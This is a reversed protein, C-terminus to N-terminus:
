RRGPSPPRARTRCPGRGARRWRGARRRGHAPFPGGPNLRRTTRHRSWPGQHDRSGSNLAGTRRRAATCDRFAGHGQRSMADLRRTSDFHKGSGEETFGEPPDALGAVVRLDTEVRIAPAPSGIRAGDPTRPTFDRSADCSTVPAPHDGVRVRCSVECADSLYRTVSKCRALCRAASRRRVGRSSKAATAEVPIATMPRRDATTAADPPRTMVMAIGADAAGASPGALVRGGTSTEARVASARATRAVEGTTETGSSAAQPKSAGAIVTVALGFGTTTTRVELTERAASRGTLLAM